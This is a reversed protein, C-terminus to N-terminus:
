AIADSMSIYYCPRLPGAGLLFSFEYKKAGAWVLRICDIKTDHSAVNLLLKCFFVPGTLTMVRVPGTHGGSISSGGCLLFPFKYKKAGAM